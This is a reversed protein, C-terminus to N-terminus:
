NTQLQRDLTLPGPNPLLPAVLFSLAVLHPQTLNQVHQGLIQLLQASELGKHKAAHAHDTV